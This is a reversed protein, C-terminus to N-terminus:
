SWISARRFFLRAADGDVGGVDFVFGGVAVVRVNVARTVGVVDLVHDGTGGLHVAGDQDARGSVAGHRLGALVDQQGALNAHREDDDIRFLHSMTSSASSSSSTSISTRSSEGLVVERAVVDGDDLARGELGEFAVLGFDAFRRDEGQGIGQVAVDRRRARWRCARGSARDFVDERDRTTAGDDGTADLATDDLDAFFDFDDADLGGDLGGAGADFHEALQEVLTLSAVVDADQQAAGLTFFDLAALHQGLRARDGRVGVERAFHIDQRLIFAATM